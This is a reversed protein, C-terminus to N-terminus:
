FIIKPHAVDNLCEQLHTQKVSVGEKSIAMRLAGTQAILRCKHKARTIGTYLLERTLLAYASFDVGMIVYDWQSGQSKHVTIAYGLKINNWYEQDLRVEGIGVFDIIMVEADFDIERIIGINGNYIPPESKYTNKENIVKDGERLIYSGEKAHILYEKKKVDEPNYIEQVANNVEYTSVSGRAKLPVIIQTELINFTPKAFEVNFANMIKYFTNSADSYLDLTLDQLKGRTDVGTWDKEVIQEGHRIKISETIIASAAAQRHIKTLAVTPIEKSQIMDYAINGSGISELQGQDGLCIVKAGNPIARLLYYFLYSDVMSIEDLIYIDYCLPNEDHFTFNQKAEESKDPYGLLRHITYGEKGTIESMRSAARGSLATQVYSCHKLTELLLTVLTSKGSGALGHIITVNNDLAKRAGEKQEDTFQWGQQHELHKVVNDFDSYTIDSEADRIRILEKAINEEINYYRQLGIQSKDDNWWLMDELAHIAETINEDPVEEGLTDIIAGMLEDPTIWSSGLQAKQDLYRIMFAGIREICYEEMGGKLAIKDATEWGIGQVETCLVYPNNKVKEIVVDPSKYKNMLKNIMNNTLNYQELETYIKGLHLSTNFRTVWRSATEMGCGKVQVLKQVDNNKLTEFPNELTNYMSEVQKETFLSSLFKKQGVMDNEGFTIASYISIIDYQEGWKPDNLFKATVNYMNGEKPHPMTGKLIIQGYKNTQIIGQKVKDASVSIIGWGEKYFRIDEISCTMKIIENTQNEPM